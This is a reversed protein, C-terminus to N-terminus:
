QLTERERSMTRDGCFGDQSRLGDPIWALCRIEFSAGRKRLEVKSILQLLKCVEGDVAM